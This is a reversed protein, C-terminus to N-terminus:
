RIVVAVLHSGAYIYDRAKGTPAGPDRWETLLENGLGRLYSTTAGQSTKRARWDDADYVYTTTAQNVTASAMRNHPTYAYTATSQTRLNGNDDYTLAVGNQAILRLTGPQYEYTSGAANQRNGHADYAYTVAGYPGEAAVLRDLQDRSSPCRVRM